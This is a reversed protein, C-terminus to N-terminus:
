NIDEFKIEIDKRSALYDAWHLMKQFKNKPEPLVIDSRPSSVFEGMHTEITTAILEIEDDPIIGCGKYRMIMNSAIIPHEHKTFKNRVYDAQSGSKWADHMLGAVRVLDRERSTWKANMCKIEWTWNLLKILALTHRILGGEGLSMNPHYKGSSSAPVFKWYAPAAEIVTEAFEKIDENELHLQEILYDNSYMTM